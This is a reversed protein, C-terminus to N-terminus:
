ESMNSKNDNHDDLKAEAEDLYPLADVDLHLAEM